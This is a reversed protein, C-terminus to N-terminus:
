TSLAAPDPDPDFYYPPSLDEIDLFLRQVVITAAGEGASESVRESVREGVRESGSSSPVKLSRAVQVGAYAQELFTLNSHALSLQQAARPCQVDERSQAFPSSALRHLCAFV